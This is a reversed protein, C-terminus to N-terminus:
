LGLSVGSPYTALDYGAYRQRVVVGGLDGDVKQPVAFGKARTPPLVFLVHMAVQMGLGDEIM